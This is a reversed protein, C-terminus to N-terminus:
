VQLRAAVGLKVPELRPGTLQQVTMDVLCRVVLKVERTV